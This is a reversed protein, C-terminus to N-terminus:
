AYIFPMGVNPADGKLRKEHRRQELIQTELRRRLGAFGYIVVPVLKEPDPNAKKAQM